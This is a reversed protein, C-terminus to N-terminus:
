IWGRLEQWLMTHSVRAQCVVPLKRYQGCLSIPEITILSVGAWPGPFRCQRTQWFRDAPRWRPNQPFIMMSVLSRFSSTSRPSVFARRHDSNGVVVGRLLRCAFGHDKYDVQFGRPEHRNTGFPHHQPCRLLFIPDLCHQITGHGRSGTQFLVCRHM